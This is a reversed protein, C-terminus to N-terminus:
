MGCGLKGNPENITLANKTDSNSSHLRSKESYNKSSIKIRMKISFFKEEDVGKVKLFNFFFNEKAARVYLHFFNFNILPFFFVLFFKNPVIFICWTATSPRLCTHMCHMQTHEYIIYIHADRAHLHSHAFASTRFLCVNLMM